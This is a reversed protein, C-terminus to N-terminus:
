LFVRGHKIYETVLRHFYIGQIRFEWSFSHFLPQPDQMNNKSSTLYYRPFLSIVFFIGPVTRLEMTSRVLTAQSGTADIFAASQDFEVLDLNPRAIRRYAFIKQNQVEVVWNTQKGLMDSYRHTTCVARNVIQGFFLALLQLVETENSFIWIHTLSHTLSFSLHGEPDLLLSSHCCPATFPNSSWLTPWGTTQEVETQLEKTQEKHHMLKSRLFERIQSVAWMSTAM